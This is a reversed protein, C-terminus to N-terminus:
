ARPPHELAAREGPLVEVRAILRPAVVADARLRVRQCALHDGDRVLESRRGRLDRDRPHARLRPVRNRDDAGSGFRLEALVEACELDLERVLLEVPKSCRALEPSPNGRSKRSDSCTRPSMKPSVNSSM